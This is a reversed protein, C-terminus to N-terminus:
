TVSCEWCLCPLCLTSNLPSMAHPSKVRPAPCRAPQLGQRRVHPPTRPRSGRSAFRGSAVPPSMDDTRVCEGGPDRSDVNGGTGRGPGPPPPCVPPRVIAAPRHTWSLTSDVTNATATRVARGRERVRRSAPAFRTVATVARKTMQGWAKSPGGHAPRPAM